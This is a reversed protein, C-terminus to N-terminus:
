TAVMLRPQLSKHVRLNKWPDSCFCPCLVLAAYSQGTLFDTMVILWFYRSYPCVCVSTSETWLTISCAFFPVSTNMGLSQILMVWFASFVFGYITGNSFWSSRFSAFNKTASWFHLKFSKAVPLFISQHCTLRIQTVFPDFWICNLYSLVPSYSLMSLTRCSSMIYCPPVSNVVQAMSRKQEM